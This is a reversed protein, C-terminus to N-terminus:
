RREGTAGGKPPVGPDGRLLVPVKETASAVPRVMETLSQSARERRCNKFLHFGHVNRGKARNKKQVHVFPFIPRIPEISQSADVSYATLMHSLALRPEGETDGKWWRVCSPM